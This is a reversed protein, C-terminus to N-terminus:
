APPAGGGALANLAAALADIDDKKVVDIEAAGGTHFEIRLRKMAGFGKGTPAAGAIASRPVEALLKKPKAAFASQSFVLIRQDTVVLVGRSPLTVGAEGAAKRDGKSRASQVAAGLLGGVAMAAAQGKAQFRAANTVQEGPHLSPTAAAVAKDLYAM